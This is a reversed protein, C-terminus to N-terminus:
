VTIFHRIFRIGIEFIRHGSFIYFFLRKRITHSQKKIYDM